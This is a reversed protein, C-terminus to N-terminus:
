FPDCHCSSSRCWNGNWNNAAVLGGNNVLTDGLFWAFASAIAAVLIQRIWSKRKTVFKTVKNDVLKM